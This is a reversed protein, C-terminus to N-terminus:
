LVNKGKRRHKQCLRNLEEFLDAKIENMTDDWSEAISKKYYQCKRDTGITYSIEIAEKDTTIKIETSMENGLKKAIVSFKNLSEKIMEIEAAGFMLAENRGLM